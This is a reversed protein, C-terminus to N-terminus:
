TQEAGFKVRNNSQNHFIELGIKDDVAVLALASAICMILVVKNSAIAATGSSLDTSSNLIDRIGVLSQCWSHEFRCTRRPYKTLWTPLDFM